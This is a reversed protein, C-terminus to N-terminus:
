YLSDHAEVEYLDDHEDCWECTIEMEEAEEITYVMEGVLLFDGRSRIAEICHRCLYM